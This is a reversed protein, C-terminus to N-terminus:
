KWYSFLKKSLLGGRSPDENRSFSYLFAEWDGENGGRNRKSWKCSFNANQLLSNYFFGVINRQCLKIHFCTNREQISFIGFKEIIEFWRENRVSEFKLDTSLFNILRKMLQANYNFNPLKIDLFKIKLIKKSRGVFFVFGKLLGVEQFKLREDWFEMFFYIALFFLLLAVAQFLRYFAMKQNFFDTM